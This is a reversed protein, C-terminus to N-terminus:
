FTFGYAMEFKFRFVATIWDSNTQSTDLLKINL